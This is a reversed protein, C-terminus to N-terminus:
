LLNQENVNIAVSDIVNGEKENYLFEYTYDTYQCYITSDKDIQSGKFNTSITDKTLGLLNKGNLTLTSFDHYNYDDKNEYYDDNDNNSFYLIKIDAIECKELPQKSKTKNILGVTAFVEEDKYITICLPLYTLSDLEKVPKYEKVFNYTYGKDLIEQLTTKGSTMTLDDATITINKSDIKSETKTKTKTQTKVEISCGAFSLLFILCLVSCITKRM